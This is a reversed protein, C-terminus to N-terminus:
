PAGSAKRKRLVVARIIGDFADRMAWAKVTWGKVTGARLLGDGLAGSLGKCSAVSQFRLATNRYVKFCAEHNGQNYLPAGLEIAEGIAKYVNQISEDNCGAFIAAAILLM